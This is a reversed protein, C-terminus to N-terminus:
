YIEVLGRERIANFSWRLVFFGLPLFLGALCMFKIAAITCSGSWGSAIIGRVSDLLLNIPSFTTLLNQLPMPLVKAPFYVGGSLTLLTLLPGIAGQGRGYKLGLGALLLGVGLFLPLSLIITFLALLFEALTIKLSFVWVAIILTLLLHLCQSFFPRSFPFLAVAIRSIPLILLAELTGEQHAIRASALIGSLLTLPLLITLEGIVVFSFYDPAGMETPNVAATFFRAAYWYTVLGSVVGFLEAMVALTTPYRERWESLSFM